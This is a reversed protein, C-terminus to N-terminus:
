LSYLLKEIDLVNIFPFPIGRHALPPVFIQSKSYMFLIIPDYSIESQCPCASDHTSLLIPIFNKIASSLSHEYVYNSLM